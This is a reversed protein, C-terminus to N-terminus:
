VNRTIALVNVSNRALLMQNSQNKKCVLSIPLQSFNPCYETDNIQSQVLASDSGNRLQRNLDTKFQSFGRAVICIVRLHAM